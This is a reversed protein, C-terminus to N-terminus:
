GGMWALIAQAFVPFEPYSLTFRAGQEAMRGRPKASFRTKKILRNPSETAM